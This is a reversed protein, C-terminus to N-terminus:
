NEKWNIESENILEDIPKHKNIKFLINYINNKLNIKFDEYNVDHINIIERLVYLDLENLVLNIKANPYKKSVNLAHSVKDILNKTYFIHENENEFVFFQIKELFTIITFNIISDLFIIEKQNIELAYETKLNFLKM